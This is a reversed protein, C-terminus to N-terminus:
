QENFAHRARAVADQADGAAEEVETLAKRMVRTLEPHAIAEASDVWPKLIRWALDWAELEALADWLDRHESCLSLGETDAAAPRGCVCTRTEEPTTNETVREEKSTTRATAAGEIEISTDLFSHIALGKIM